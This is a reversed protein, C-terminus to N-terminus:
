MSLLAKQFKDGQEIVANIRQVFSESDQSTEETDVSEKLGILVNRYDRAMRELRSDNNRNAELEIDFASRSQNRINAVLDSCGVETLDGYLVESKVIDAHFSMLDMHHVLEKRSERYPTRSEIVSSLSSGVVFGVVMFAGFKALFKTNM